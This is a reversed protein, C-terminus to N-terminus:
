KKKAKKVAKKVSASAPAAAPTMLSILRELKENVGRLENKVETLARDDRPAPAAPTFSPRPSFERRPGYSERGRPAEDKVFCDSCYVPKKGNPRFPLEFSKGCKNCTARFMERPGDNHAGYPRPGGSSFGGKKQFPKRSSFRPKFDAM